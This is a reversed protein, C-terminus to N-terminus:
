KKLSIHVNAITCSTFLGPFSSFNSPVSLEQNQHDESSSSDVLPENTEKGRLATSLVNSCQQLKLPSPRANYPRLSLENRHGSIAMIHRNSIGAESWLTIATVRLSHNTYRRSLRAEQSIESMMDGLKNVGLPRNEFWVEDSIDWGQRKPYQFFSTCSPNLKAIYLRLARYGDIDENTEYMRGYKEFSEVDNIGGQHNKTTESHTMTAYSRGQPDTEFAFSSPTLSRQGERGRRCWFLTTNFWVNRLLGLPTSPKFVDSERLKKLDELEIPPKHKVNEKGDRKLQKIKADLFKNSSQFLPNGAIKIGRKYPPNNLYREISNRLGLLTSRSYDDGKKNRTEAYFKTLVKDLEDNDM